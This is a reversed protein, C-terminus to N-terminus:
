GPARRGGADLEALFYSGSHPPYVSSWHHLAADLLNDRMKRDFQTLRLRGAFVDGNVYPFADLEGSLGKQRRVEPTDLVDFLQSFVLGMDSGDPRTDNDILQLFIDKPQFIGTDDAFLCFLIRVLFQELDHGTYGAYELAVHLKGM